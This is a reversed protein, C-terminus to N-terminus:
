KKFKSKSKKEKVKAEESARVTEVTSIAQALKSPDTVEVKDGGVNFIYIVEPEKRPAKLKFDWFSGTKIKVGDKTIFGAIKDYRALVLEPNKAAEEEGIGGELTGSRGMDGYKVRDIKDQNEMVFGNVIEM